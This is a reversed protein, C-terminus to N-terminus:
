RGGLEYTVDIGAVVDVDGGDDGYASAVLVVGVEDPEAFAVGRGRVTLTAM